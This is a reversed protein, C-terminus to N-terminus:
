EVQIEEKTTIRDDHRKKYSGNGSRPSGSYNKKVGPTGRGALNEGM